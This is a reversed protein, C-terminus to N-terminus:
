PGLVVGDAGFARANRFVGGVNDLYSVGDLVVLCAPGRPLGALLADLSRPEGREAVALCGGHFAYGVVHRIVADPAVLVLPVAALVDGLSDRAAETVLVSRVPFR